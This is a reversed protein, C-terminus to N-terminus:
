DTLYRLYRGPGSLFARYHAVVDLDEWDREHIGDEDFELITAGPLSAVIPSHTAILVQTM